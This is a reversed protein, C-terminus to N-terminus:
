FFFSDLWLEEEKLNGPRWLTLIATMVDRWVFVSKSGQRQLVSSVTLEQSEGVSM